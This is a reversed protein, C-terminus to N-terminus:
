QIKVQQDAFRPYVRTFEADSVVFEIRLRAADVTMSTVFETQVWGNSADLIECPLDTAFGEERFSSGDDQLEQVIKFLNCVITTGTLDVPILSQTAEDYEM